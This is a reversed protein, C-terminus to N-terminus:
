EAKALAQEDDAAFNVLAQSQMAVVADLVTGGVVHGVIGGEVTVTVDTVVTETMGIAQEDTDEEAVGGPHEHLLM